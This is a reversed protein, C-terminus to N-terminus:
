NFCQSANKYVVKTRTKEFVLFYMGGSNALKMGSGSEDRVSSSRVNSSDKDEESNSTLTSGSKAKPPQFASKRFM